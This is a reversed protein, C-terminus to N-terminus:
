AAKREINVLFTGKVVKRQRNGKVKLGAIGVPDLFRLDTEDANFVPLGLFEVPFPESKKGVFPVAINFGENIAQICEGENKGSWSFTIYQNPIAKSAQLIEWDKTYDYFQIEPLLQYINQGNLYLVQSWNIDTTGNLRVVLKLGQRTARRKYYEIERVMNELFQRKDTLFENAKRRRANRIKGNKGGMAARGSDNLCLALCEKTAFPCLNEKFANDKGPSLHLVLTLYGLSEGKKTKPNGTTFLNFQKPQRIVEKSYCLDIKKM